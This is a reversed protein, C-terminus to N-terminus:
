NKVITCEASKAKKSQVLCHVVINTKANHYSNLLRGTQHSINVRHLIRFWNVSQRLQKCKPYYNIKLLKLHHPPYTHGGESVKKAGLM